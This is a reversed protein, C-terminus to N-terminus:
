RWIFPSPKQVAVGNGFHKMDCSMSVWWRNRAKSLSVPILQRRCDRKPISDRLQYCKIRKGGPPVILTRARTFLHIVAGSPMPSESTSNSWRRKIVHPEQRRVPAFSRLGNGFDLFTYPIGAIKGCEKSRIKGERNKKGRASIVAHVNFQTVCM